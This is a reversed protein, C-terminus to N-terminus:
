ADSKIRDGLFGHSIKAEGPDFVRYHKGVLMLSHGAKLVERVLAPHATLPVRVEGKKKAFPAQRRHGPNSGHQDDATTRTELARWETSSDGMIDDFLLKAEAVRRKLVGAPRSTAQPAARKPPPAADPLDCFKLRLEVDEAPKLTLGRRRMRRTPNRRRQPEGTTSDCVVVPQWSFDGALRSTVNHDDRTVDAQYGEDIGRDDTEQDLGLGEADGTELWSQVIEDPTAGVGAVAGEECGANRAAASLTELWSQAIEDPTAGVGAVAGEERGANLAAASLPGDAIMSCVVDEEEEEAEKQATTTTPTARHIGGSRAM